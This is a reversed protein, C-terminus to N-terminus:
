LVNSSNFTEINKLDNYLYIYKAFWIQEANIILNNCRGIRDLSNELDKNDLLDVINRYIDFWELFVKQPMLIFIDPILNSPNNSSIYTKQKNLITFDIRPLNSSRVDFRTMFVFDYEDQLNNSVYENFIDRVKSRSYVQFLVNNISNLISNHTKKGAITQKCKTVIEDIINNKQIEYQFAVPNYLKKLAEETNEDYLLTNSDINRWPAASFKEQNNLTWCHYFFDVTLNNINKLFNRLNDHGKIFDRPQGFLCVAIKM